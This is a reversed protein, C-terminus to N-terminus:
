ALPGSSSLDTTPGGVRLICRPDTKGTSHAHPAWCERPDRLPPASACEGRPASPADAAALHPCDATVPGAIGARRDALPM